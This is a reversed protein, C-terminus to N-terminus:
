IGIQKLKGDRLLPKIANTVMEILKETSVNLRHGSIEYNALDENDMIRKELTNNRWMETLYYNKSIKIQILEKSENEFAIQFYNDNSIILLNEILCNGNKTAMDLFVSFGNLEYVLQIDNWLKSLQQNRM